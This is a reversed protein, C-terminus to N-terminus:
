KHSSGRIRHKAANNTVHVINEYTVTTLSEVTPCRVKGTTLAHIHFSKDECMVEKGDRIVNLCHIFSCKNIVGIM